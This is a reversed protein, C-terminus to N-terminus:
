LTMGLELVFMAVEESAIVGRTDSDFQKAGWLRWEVLEYPGKLARLWVSALQSLQLLGAAYM